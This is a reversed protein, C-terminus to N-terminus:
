STGVLYGYSQALAMYQRGWPTKLQQLNMMTFMKAADPVVMSQNTAEDGSAQIVGGVFTNIGAKTRLSALVTQGAQEPAINVLTDGAFNYVAQEYVAPMSRLACNVIEIALDYSAPIYPSDDPVVAATIGMVDRIFVLYGALTPGTVTM